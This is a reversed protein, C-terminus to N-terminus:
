ALTNIAVTTPLVSATVGLQSGPDLTYTGSLNVGVAVTVSDIVIGQINGGQVTIQQVFPTTNSYAGSTLAGTSWGAYGGHTAANALANNHCRRTKDAVGDAAVNISGVSGSVRNGSVIYNGCNAGVAIGYPARWPVGASGTDDTNGTNDLISVGQGSLMHVAATASGVRNATGFRNGQILINGGLVGIIRINATGANSFYCGRFQHNDQFGGSANIFVADNEWSEIWSNEVRVSGIAGGVGATMFFAYRKNNAIISNAIYYNICVGDTLSFAIDFFQFLCNDVQCTDWQSSVQQFVATGLTTTQASAQGSFGALVAVALAAAAPRFAQM